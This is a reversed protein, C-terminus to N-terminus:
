EYLATSDSAPLRICRYAAVEGLHIEPPILYQIILKKANHEFAILSMLPIVDSGLEPITNVM